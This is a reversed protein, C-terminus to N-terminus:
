ARSHVLQLYGLWCSCGRFRGSRAGGSCNPELVHQIIQILGTWCFTLLGPLQQLWNSPVLTCGCLWLHSVKPHHCPVAGPRHPGLGGPAAEGDRVVRIPSLLQLIGGDADPQQFGQHLHLVWLRTSLVSSPLLVFFHRGPYPCPSQKMLDAILM